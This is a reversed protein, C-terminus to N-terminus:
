QLASKLFRVRARRLQGSVTQPVRAARGVHIEEIEPTNALDSLTSRRVGAGVLMKLSPAAARQWELLRAKRRAWNGKGGITLIRDIQPTEKLQEISEIPSALEDFARHFTIRCQPAASALETIAALDIEKEAIFGFVLGNVPLRSLNKADAKLARVERPSGASMSASSRLMVRVPIKVEDLVAGVTDLSPTLGGVALDRVLELRDAGGAEAEIAEHLSTVIVELFKAM